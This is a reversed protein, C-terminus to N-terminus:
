AKPKKFVLSKGSGTTGERQKAVHCCYAYKTVRKFLVAPYNLPEPRHREFNLGFSRRTSLVNFEQELETGLDLDKAKARAILDTLRSVLPEGTLKKMTATLKSFIM